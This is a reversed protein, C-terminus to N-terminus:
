ETVPPHRRHGQRRSTEHPLTRKGPSILRNRDPLFHNPATRRALTGEELAEVLCFPSPGQRDIGGRDIEGALDSRNGLCPM